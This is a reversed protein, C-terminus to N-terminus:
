AEATGPSACKAMVAIDQLQQFSDLFVGKLSELAAKKARLELDEAWSNFERAVAEPLTYEAASAIDYGKQAAVNLYHIRCTHVCEEGCNHNFAKVLDAEAQERHRLLKAAVWKEHDNM